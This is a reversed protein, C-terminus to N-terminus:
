TTKLVGGRWGVTGAVSATGDCTVIATETASLTCITVADGDDKVVIDEGGTNAIVLVLGDADAEPPLLLDETTGSNADVYLVNSTILTGVPTGPVVTLVVQADAMDITQADVFHLLGKGLKIRGDKGTGALAGASITVDGGNGNTSAAAGAALSAAGGNGTAGTASAGGTIAVAGGDGTGAAGGAGGTVSAAGGAGSGKGVGGTAAVAGGTGNTSLAAGGTISGAGGNGTAGTGSGGGALTVAGGAGTGGVAGTGGAATIAGGAANTHGVGGSLAVIGGAGAAAGPIGAIGLSADSGTIDDALISGAITATRKAATLAVRAYSDGSLASEVVVGMLYASPTATAAGSGATGTVPSGAADWYIADGATLAGTVKPVDWVGTIKLSGLAAADINCPAVAPITGVLIVDGATVAAEPTHDISDGQQVFKAPTQAM